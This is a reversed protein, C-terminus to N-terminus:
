KDANSGQPSSQRAIAPASRGNSSTEDKEELLQQNNIGGNPRARTTDAAGTIPVRCCHVESPHMSIAPGSDEFVHSHQIM